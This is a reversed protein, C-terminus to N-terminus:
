VNERLKEVEEIEMITRVESPFTWRPDDKEDADLNLKGMVDLELTWSIIKRDKSCSIFGNLDTLDIM